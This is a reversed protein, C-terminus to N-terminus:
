AHGEGKRLPKPLSINLPYRRLYKRVQSVSYWDGCETCQFEKNQSRDAPHVCKPCLFMANDHALRLYKARCRMFLAMVVFCYVFYLISYAFRIAQFEAPSMYQRFVSPFLYVLPLGLCLIVSIRSFVRMRGRIRQVEEPTPPKSRVM